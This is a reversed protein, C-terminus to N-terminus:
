VDLPDAGPPRPHLGLDAVRGAADLVRVRDERGRPLGGIRDEDRGRAARAEVEDLVELRREVRRAALRQEGLRRVSEAEVADGRPAPERQPQAAVVVHGGVVEVEPAVQLVREVPRDIRRLPGAHAEVRAGLGGAAGERQRGQRGSVGRRAKWSAATPSSRNASRWGSTSMWRNPADGPIRSGNRAISWPRRVGSCSLPRYLRQTAPSTSDAVFTDSTGCSISAAPQMGTTLSASCLRMTSSLSWM